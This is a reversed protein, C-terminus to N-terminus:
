ATRRFLKQKRKRSLLIENRKTSLKYFHNTLHACCLTADMNWIKHVNTNWKLWYVCVQRLAENGGKSNLVNSIRRWDLISRRIIETHAHKWQYWKGLMVAYVRNCQMLASVRKAKLNHSFRKLTRVIAARLYLKAFAKITRTTWASMKTHKGM